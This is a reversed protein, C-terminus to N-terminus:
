FDPPRFVDNLLLSVAHSGYLNAVTFLSVSRCESLQRLRIAQRVPIARSRSDRLEGDWHQRGSAWRLSGSILSM